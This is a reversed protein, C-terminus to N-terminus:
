SVPSKTWAKKAPPSGWQKSSRHTDRSKLSGMKHPTFTEDDDDDEILVVLDAISKTTDLDDIPLSPPEKFIPSSSASPAGWGKQPAPVNISLPKKFFPYDTAPPM